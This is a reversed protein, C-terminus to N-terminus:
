KIRILTKDMYMWYFYGSLDMRGLQKARSESWGIGFQNTALDYSAGYDAHVFSAIDCTKILSNDSIFIDTFPPNSGM